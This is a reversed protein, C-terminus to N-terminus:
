RDFPECDKVHSAGRWEWIWGSDVKHFTLDLDFLSLVNSDLKDDNTGIVLKGSMIKFHFQSLSTHVHLLHSYYTCYM